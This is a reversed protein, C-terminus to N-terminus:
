APQTLMQGCVPCAQEPKFLNTSRCRKCTITRISTERSREFKKGFLQKCLTKFVEEHCWFVGQMEPTLYDSWDKHIEQLQLLSNSTLMTDWSVKKNKESWALMDRMAVSGDPDETKALKDYLQGVSYVARAGDNACPTDLFLRDVRIKVTVKNAVTDKM